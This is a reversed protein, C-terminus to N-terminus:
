INFYQDDVILIKKIKAVKSFPSPALDLTPIEHWTKADPKINALSSEEIIESLQLIPSKDLDLTYKLLCSEDQSTQSIKSPTWEFHLDKCDHKYDQSVMREKTDAPDQLKITFSFTSGKDVESDFTIEGGFQNVINESIVLGLGIGNKNQSLGDELFGFM